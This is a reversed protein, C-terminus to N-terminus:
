RLYSIGVEFKRSLPFWTEFIFDDNGLELATFVRLIARRQIGGKWALSAPTVNDYLFAGLFKSFSNTSVRTSKDHVCGPTVCM